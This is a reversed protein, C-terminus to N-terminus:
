EAFSKGRYLLNATFRKNVPPPFFLLNEYARAYLLKVVVLFIKQKNEGVFTKCGAFLLNAYARSRGVFTKCGAFL